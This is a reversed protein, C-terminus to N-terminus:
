PQERADGIFKEVKRFGGLKDSVYKLPVSWGRIYPLILFHFPYVAVRYCSNGEILLLLVTFGAIIVISVIGPCFYSLDRGRSFCMGIAALFTLISFGLQFGDMTYIAWLPCLYPGTRKVLDAQSNSRIRRGISGGGCHTGTINVFKYKLLGPYSKWDRKVADKLKQWRGKRDLTMVEHALPTHWHGKAELNFGLILEYLVVDLFKNDNQLLGPANGLAVSACTVCRSTYKSVGFLLLFLLCARVIIRRGPRQMVALLLYVLIAFYFLFTITKFVYSLGLAAGSLVVALLFKRDIRDTEVAQMFFYAAYLMFVASIIASSLVSSWLLLAPSSILLLVVFRAMSRGGVRECIRFVPMVALAAFLANLLQGTRLVPAFIVGLTSIFIEYIAWYFYKNPAHTFRTRGAILSNLATRGDATQGRVGLAPLYECVMWCALFCAISLFVIERRSAFTGGSPAFRELLMWIVALFAFHGLMYGIHQHSSSYCAMLVLATFAIFCYQVTKLTLKYM